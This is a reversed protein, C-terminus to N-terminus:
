IMFLISLISRVCDYVSGCLMLSSTLLCVLCPSSHSRNYQGSQLQLQPYAHYVRGATTRRDSVSHVKWIHPIGVQGKALLRLMKEPILLQFNLIRFHSTFFVQAAVPAGTAVTAGIGVAAVAAMVAALLLICALVWM